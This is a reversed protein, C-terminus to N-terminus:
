NMGKVEHGMRYRWLPCAYCTCERVEKPDYACCDLCKYRIAKQRPLRTGKSEKVMKEYRNM